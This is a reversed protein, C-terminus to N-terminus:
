DSMYSSNALTGWGLKPSTIISNKQNDKKKKFKNKQDSSDDSSSFEDDSNENSKSKQSDQQTAELSGNMNFKRFFLKIGTRADIIHLDTNNIAVLYCDNNSFFFNSAVFTKNM